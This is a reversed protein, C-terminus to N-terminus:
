GSQTMLPVLSRGTRVAHDPIALLQTVTPLVDVLSVASDVTIGAPLRAPWSLILPVRLQEEFLSAAHGLYGHDGLGEGHDATLIILTNDRHGARDLASLLDGIQRDAYEVEKRYRERVDSLSLVEDARFRLELSTDSANRNRFEIAAAIGRGSSGTGAGDCGIACEADISADTVRIDQLRIQRLDTGAMSSVRVVSNGPPVVLPITVSNANALIEIAERGSQRVSIRPYTQDPPSYPEHPDSYHAWVFFPNEVQQLWPVLWDNMEGAARWWDLGFEDQYEDFGQSLGSPRRVVGLSIFGATRRRTARLLEALTVYDDSLPQLNNQVGHARPLLSTFLSAHSPGTLPINSYAREFRVGLAALADMSPTHARGGYAGVHDARLTDVVILLVNTTLDTDRVDVSAGDFCAGLMALALITTAPLNTVCPETVRALMKQRPEGVDLSKGRYALAPM